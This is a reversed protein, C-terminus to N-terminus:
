VGHIREHLPCRVKYRLSELCLIANELGRESAKKPNFGHGLLWGYGKKESPFLELVLLNIEKLLDERTM